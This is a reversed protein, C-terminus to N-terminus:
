YNLLVFPLTNFFFLYAKFAKWLSLLMYLGLDRKQVNRVQVVQFDVIKNEHGEMLSYTGYKASFGPSDSRNDGMLTMQRPCAALVHQQATKWHRIVLPFLYTRQHKYYTVPSM